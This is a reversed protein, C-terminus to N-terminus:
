NQQKLAEVEASLEQVAKWLVAILGKPDLTLYDEGERELTSVLHPAVEQIEQAIFYNHRGDPLHAEPRYEFSKPNVAKVIELGGQFPHINVKLRVDSFAAARADIYNNLYGNGGLGGNSSSLFANGYINGDTQHQSGGVYLVGSSYYCSSSGLYTATVASTASGATTAYTANGITASAILANFIATARAEIYSTISGSGGLSGNTANNFASGLINGDSQLTSTKAQDTVKLGQNAVITANSSGSSIASGASSVKKDIYNKLDTTGTLSWQGSAGADINGDAIVRAAKSQTYDTIFFGGTNKIEVEQTTDPSILKSGSSSGGSGAGLEAGSANIIKGTGKPVLQIDVNPATGEAVLQIVQKGGGETSRFLGQGKVGSPADVRIVYTGSVSLNDTSGSGGSGGTSLTGTSGPSTLTASNGGELFAPIAIWVQNQPWGGNTGTSTTGLNFCANGGDLNYSTARLMGIRVQVGKAGTTPDGSPSTCRMVGQGHLETRLSQINIRPDVADILIAPLNPVAGLNEPWISLDQGQIDLIGFEATVGNAGPAVYIGCPVADAQASHAKIRTAVGNGNNVFHFLYRGAYSFIKGSFVASDVRGLVFTSHNNHQWKYVAKSANWFPWHHIDGIKCADYQKDMVLVSKFFQGSIGGLESRGSNDFEVGIYVGNFFLDRLSVGGYCDKVKIVPAYVTPSWSGAVNPQSVTPQNQKFAVNRLIAGRAATGTFTIAPVAPSDHVIWTGGNAEYAEMGTTGYIQVADTITAGNVRYFGPALFGPVGAAACAEVFNTFAATDDTVGDGVLGYDSSLVVNASGEIITTGGDGRSAEYFKLYQITVEDDVEPAAVFTIYGDESVTYVSPDQLLGNVSVIWLGEKGLLQSVNVGNFKLEFTKLTGNFQSNLSDIKLGKAFVANARDFTEQAVFLPQRTAIDLSEETLVAASSFDVLPVDAPTERQILVETQNVPAPVISITKANIWSFEDRDLEVGNLYVKVHEKSIFEFPVAFSTTSGNGTYVKYSNAM